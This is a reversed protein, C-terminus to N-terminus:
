IEKATVKENDFVSRDLIIQDSASLGGEVEVYQGFVTGLEIKKSQAVGKELVFVYASDQTQHVSDLPIYPIAASTQAYGVPIEVEIYSSDTYSAILEDPLAYYVSYLSGDTAEQSVYSPMLSIMRGDINLISPELRSVNFAVDRSVLAVALASKSNTSLTFLVDGPNVAEGFKVHIKEIVGACPASPYAISENIVALTYQLQTIEKNLVLSKEQLELNKVTIEKNLDSLRAQPNDEDVSYEIERVASKLQSQSSLLQVKQQRLATIATENSGASNTAEFQSLNKNITDLIADNLKIIDQTEGKSKDAIARLEDANQDTQNAADKQKAIIQNQLDFTDKVNQLQKEAIQRQVTLASGGQYNTSISTLATGRNVQQGQVVNINQVIGSTQAVIKIVGSKEIQAQARLKPAEGIAYVSVQKPQVQTNEAPPQPRRIYSGVAILIFLLSLLGFFSFLPFRQFLATMRKGADRTTTSIKRGISSFPNKM